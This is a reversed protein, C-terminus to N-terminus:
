ETTVTWLKPIDLSGIREIYLPRGLKDVGHYARPYIEEVKAREPFDWELHLGNINEKTRWLIHNQFM